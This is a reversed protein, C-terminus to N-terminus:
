SLLGFRYMVNSESNNEFHQHLKKIEWYSEKTDPKKNKRICFAVVTFDSFYPVKSAVETKSIVTSHSIYQMPKNEDHNSRFTHM